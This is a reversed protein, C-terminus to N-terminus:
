YKFKNLKDEVDSTQTLMGKAEQSATEASQAAKVTIDTIASINRNIDETVQHQEEAATAIQCVMEQMTSTTAMLAELEMVATRSSEISNRSYTQGNSIAEVTLQIQSQFRDIMQQIEETSNQTKSALQRVEDAVVAFGRGHEGARAAEIAANLALLNTQDSISRIVELISSIQHSQTELEVITETSREMEEGLQSIMSASDNVVDSCRTIAQNAEEVSSATNAVNNAVESATCAMENIATAVQELEQRQQQVGQHSTEAIGASRNASLKLNEVSGAIDRIMGQLSAMLTNLGHMLSGTEDKRTVNLRYTLDGGAQGLQRVIDVVQQIPTSIRKAMMYLVALAFLSIVVGAILQSNLFDGFSSNLERQLANIDALLEAKPVSIWLMWPTDTNGVRIPTVLSSFEETSNWIQKGAQFQAKRQNWDSLVEGLPSVPNTDGAVVGRYTIISVHSNPGFKDRQLKLALENIFNISLDIGLMGITRGNAKIPTVLNAMLVQKGQVDYAWPDILCSRGTELPCLYWESVRTGTKTQDQIYFRDSDVASPKLQNDSGRTWYVNFQGKGDISEYTSDKGDWADPEFAIYAGLFKQNGALLDRVMLSLDERSLRNQKDTSGAMGSVVSAMAEASNMAVSLQNQIQESHFKSTEELLETLTSDAFNYTKSHVMDELQGSYKLGVLLVAVLSFFLCSAAGIIIQHRISKLSIM